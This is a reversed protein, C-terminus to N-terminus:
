TACTRFRLGFGWDRYPMTLRFLLDAIRVNEESAKVQNRYCTQSVEFAQCAHRTSQAKNAM